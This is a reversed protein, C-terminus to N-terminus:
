NTRNGWLISHIDGDEEVEKQGEEGCVVRPGCQGKSFLARIKVM